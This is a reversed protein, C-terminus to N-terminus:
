TVEEACRHEDPSSVAGQSSVHPSVTQIAKRFVDYFPRDSLHELALTGFIVGFSRGLSGIDSHNIERKAIDILVIEM